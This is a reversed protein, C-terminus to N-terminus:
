KIMGADDIIWNFEDILRQRATAAEGASYTSGPAYLEFNQQVTQAAWSILIKDYFAKQINKYYIGTAVNSVDWGSIDQNFLYHT